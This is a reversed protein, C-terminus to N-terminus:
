KRYTPPNDMGQGPPKREDRTFAGEEPQQNSEGALEAVGPKEAPQPYTSVDAQWVATSHDVSIGSAPRDRRKKKYLCFWLLAGIVLVAAVSLGSALGITLSSPGSSQPQPGSGGTSSGSTPQTQTTVIGTSVSTGYTVVSTVVTTVPSPPPTSSAQSSSDDNPKSSSPAATPKAVNPHFMSTSGTTIQSGKSDTGILAISGALDTPLSVLAALKSGGQFASTYGKDCACSSRDEPKGSPEDGLSGESECCIWDNNNCISLGIFQNTDHLKQCNKAQCSSSGYSPDTCGAVYTIGTNPSYCANNLM